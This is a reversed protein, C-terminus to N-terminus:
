FKRKTTKERIKQKVGAENKKKKTNKPKIKIRNKLKKKLKEERVIKKGACLSTYINYATRVWQKTTKGNTKKKKWEDM